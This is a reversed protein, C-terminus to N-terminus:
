WKFDILSQTLECDNKMCKIEETDVLANIVTGYVGTEDVSPLINCTYRVKFVKEEEEQGLNKMKKLSGGINAKM